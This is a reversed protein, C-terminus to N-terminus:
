KIYVIVYMRYLNPHEPVSILAIFSHDPFVEIAYTAQM